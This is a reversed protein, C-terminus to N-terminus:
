HGNLTLLRRRHWQLVDHSSPDVTFVEDADSLLPLTDLEIDLNAAYLMEYAAWQYLMLHNAETDAKVNKKWRDTTAAFSMGPTFLGDVWMRDPMLHIRQMGLLAWTRFRCRIFWRYMYDTSFVLESQLLLAANLHCQDIRITYEIRQCRVKCTLCACKCM